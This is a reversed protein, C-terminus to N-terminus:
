YNDIRQLSTPSTCDVLIQQRGEASKWSKGLANLWQICQELRPRILSSDSGGLRWRRLLINAAIFIPFVLDCPLVRLFSSYKELIVCIQNASTICVELPDVAAPSSEFVSGQNWHEIFPRHLLITTSLM